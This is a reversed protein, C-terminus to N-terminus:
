WTGGAGGRGGWVERCCVGVLGLATGHGLGEGDGVQFGGDVRGASVGGGDLDLVAIPGEGARAAAAAVVAQEVAVTVRVAHQADERVALRPDPDLLPVPAVRLLLPGVLGVLGEREREVERAQGVVDGAVLGGFGACLRLGQKGGHTTIAAATGHAEGRDIDVPIVQGIARGPAACRRNHGIRSSARTGRRRRRSRLLKSLEAALQTLIPTTTYCCSLM